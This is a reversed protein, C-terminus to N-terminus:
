ELQFVSVVSFACLGCLFVMITSLTGPAFVMAVDCM